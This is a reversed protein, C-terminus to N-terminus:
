MVHGNANEVLGNCQPYYPSSHRHQMGLRGQLEKTLKKRFGLGKNTLIELPVGFKTCINGYIFDVIEKTNAEKVARAEVWLYDIAVLIYKRGRKSHPLPGIADIGWQEFAGYSIIPKYPESTLRRDGVQCLHCTHCWYFADRIM